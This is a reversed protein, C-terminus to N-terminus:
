GRRMDRKRNKEKYSRKKDSTVDALHRIFGSGDKQIGLYKWARVEISYVLVSCESESNVSVGANVGDEDDGDRERERMWTIAILWSLSPM